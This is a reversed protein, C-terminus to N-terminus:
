YIRTGKSDTVGVYTSVARKGIGLDGIKINDNNDLFVNAPKIDRHILKREHCHKLALFIQTAWKVKQEDSTHGSRIRSLLDGGGALEMLICEKGDVELHHFYRIINQHCLSQMINVETQPDESEESQFHAVKLAYQICFLSFNLSFM